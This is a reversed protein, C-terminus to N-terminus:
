EAGPDPPDSAGPGEGLPGDRIRREAEARSAEPDFEEAIDALEAESATELDDAHTAIRDLARSLEDVVPVAAARSTRSLPNLDIAVTTIGADALAATRDGDELPVLVVDAAGIGDPDVRARDHDIGPIRDEDGTRLRDAPVGAERLRDAIADVRDPDRHFLNVEVAADTAAAVTAVPEPALAAVNGNVSIVPTAALRLHAAAARAARDASPVTAEGLLYDFAEGRGHAILGERHVIGDELGAALRQRSRLSEARPHDDPVAGADASEAAREGGADSPM